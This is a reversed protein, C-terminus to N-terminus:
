NDEDDILKDYEPSLLEVVTEDEKMTEFKNLFDERALAADSVFMDVFEQMHEYSYTELGAVKDVLKKIAVFQMITVFMVYVAVVILLIDIREM